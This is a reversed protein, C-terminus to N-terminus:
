DEKNPIVVPKRARELELRGLESEFESWFDTTGIGGAGVTQAAKVMETRTAKDFPIKDPM